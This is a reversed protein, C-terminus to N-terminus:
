VAEPSSNKRLEGLAEKLRRECDIRIAEGSPQIRINVRGGSIWAQSLKGKRKEALCCDFVQRAGPGIHEEFFVAKQASGGGVLDAESPKRKRGQAVFQDRLKQSRFKVLIPRSKSSEKTPLRFIEEVDTDCINIGLKNGIEKLVTPLAEERSESVGRIVLNCRRTYAEVSNNQIRLEDVENKLAQVERKIATNQQQLETIDGGLDRRLQKIDAQVDAKFLELKTNIPTLSDTIFKKLDEIKENDGMQGSKTMGSNLSHVVPSSVELPTDAAVPSSAAPSSSPKSAQAIPNGKKSVSGGRRHAPCIWNERRSSGQSLWTTEKIGGCAFHSRCDQNVSCQAFNSTKSIPKKCHNCILTEM